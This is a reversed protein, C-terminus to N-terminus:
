EHTNRMMDEIAEVGSPLDESLCLAGNDTMVYDDEIRVGLAEEPIYVGPEITFVDGPQLPEKYDGVDHVDLGLYHGVGHPFYRALDREELYRTALWHLSQEKAQANRLFMGPKALAAIYQQTDLVIQYIERQRPTFVGNAPYTRTLDAAYYGYEAGIDVVVLDGEKIQTNRDTYHLVTSNKGTAVISPFSPRAGALVTFVYELAAQVEYEWVGPKITQAAKEQAANTIQVARYLVDIEDEDKVRRLRHMLHSIDQHVGHLSPVHKKIHEFFYEQDVGDAHMVCEGLIPVSKDCLAVLDQLFNTYGEKKFKKGYSYGPAQESLPLINDVCFDSPRSSLNLGVSVWKEREKGFNPVYVHDRGDLYMIIAAAPEIIGTFYYFSSDQRFSQREGECGGMLIVAGENLHPYVHKILAILRNRRKKFSSFDTHQRFLM